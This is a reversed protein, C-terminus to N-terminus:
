SNLHHPRLYIFYAVVIYYRQAVTVDASIEPPATKHLMQLKDVMMVVQEIISDTCASLHDQLRSFISRIVASFTVVKTGLMREQCNCASSICETGHINVKFILYLNYKTSILNEETCYM